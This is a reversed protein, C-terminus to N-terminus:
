ANPVTSETLRLEAVAVAVLNPTAKPLTTDYDYPSKIIAYVPLMGAPPGPFKKVGSLAVSCSPTATSKM